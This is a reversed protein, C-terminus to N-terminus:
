LIKKGLLSAALEVVIEATRNREDLIPNVEVLDLSTVIGADSLLEMLLHAERYTLGGPVPTGVGPAVTPDLVDADFSVHVREVRELQAVVNAAVTPVGMRDIEKMTYVTVGARQLLEREGPDVSRVGVLVVDQPELPEGGGIRVLREDGYGLLAALPMGHINGSPSTEPTNFDAHADIWILGTRGRQVGRVSGMSISHDGGLVVPLAADDLASLERALAECTSRIPELHHLGGPAGGNKKLTEVVPVELDGRDLVAYDLARIAEHLRAYRIASPGMDVGRRGAGLDMPVGVIVAQKM